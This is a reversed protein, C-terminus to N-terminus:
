YNQGILSSLDGTAASRRTDSLIAAFIIKEKLELVDNRGTWSHTICNSVKKLQDSGNKYLLRRLERLIHKYVRALQTSLQRIKKMIGYAGITNLDPYNSLHSVKWIGKEKREEEVVRAVKSYVGANDEVLWVEQNPHKRQIEEYHPHLM